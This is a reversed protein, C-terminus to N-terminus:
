ENSGAGTVGVSFGVPYATQYDGSVDRNPERYRYMKDWMSIVNARFWIDFNGYDSFDEMTVRELIQEISAGAKMEALVRDRLAVVYDRYELLSQQNTPGWHGPVVLEVDDLKALIGLTDILGDIDADRFDPLALSKEARAIDPAILVGEEPFHVQILNNSHTPGFYYLVLKKGGLHIEMEDQFVVDPVSTNRGERVIHERTRAHSVTVATDDFVHLDCIHDEHDHSLIVYKVPVDYLRGLEQKLWTPNGDGRCTGDVVILGEDTVIVSSNAAGPRHVTRFVSESVQVLSPAEADPNQAPAGQSLAVCSILLGFSLVRQRM